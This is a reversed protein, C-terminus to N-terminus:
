FNFLEPSQYKGDAVPYWWESANNFPEMNGFYAAGVSNPFATQSGFRHKRSGKRSKRSGKRSHKKHHKRSKKHSKKSHRRHKM